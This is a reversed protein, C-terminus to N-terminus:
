LYVKIQGMSEPGTVSGQVQWVRSCKEGLLTALLFGDHSQFHTFNLPLSFHRSFTRREIEESVAAILAIFINESSLPECVITCVSTGARCIPTIVVATVARWGQCLLARSTKWTLSLLASQRTRLPKSMSKEASCCLLDHKQYDCTGFCTSTTGYNRLPFQATRSLLAAGRSNERATAKWRRLSHSLNFKKDGFISHGSFDEKV